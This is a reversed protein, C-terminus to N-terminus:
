AAAASGAGQRRARGERDVRHRIERRELGVHQEAEVTEDLAVAQLPREEFDSAAPAVDGRV